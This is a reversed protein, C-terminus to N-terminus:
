RRFRAVLVAIAAIAVLIIPLFIAPNGDGHKGKTMSVVLVVGAILVGIVLLIIGALAGDKFGVTTRYPDTNLFQDNTRKEIRRKFRIRNDDFKEVMEWGAKAEEQCVEQVRQYKRFSGINSRVIKFEWGELDDKNYTTMKEEEEERRKAAAAIAAHLAPNYM